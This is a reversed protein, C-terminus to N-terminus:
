QMAKEALKLAVQASEIYNGCDIIIWGNDSKIFGIMAIDIGSAVYYGDAMKLIGAFTNDKNIQWLYPNVTDPFGEFEPRPYKVPDYIINGDNDYINQGKLELVLHAKANEVDECETKYLEKDRNELLKTNYNHTIKTADKEDANYIYAM